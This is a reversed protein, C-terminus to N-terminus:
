QQLTKLINLSIGVAGLTSYDKSQQYESSLKNTQM